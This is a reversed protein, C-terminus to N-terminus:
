GDAKNYGDYTRQKSGNSVRRAKIDVNGKETIFLLSELSKKKEEWSMDSAM